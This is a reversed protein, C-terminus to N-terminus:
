RSPRWRTPSGPSVRRGTTRTCRGTSRRPGRSTSGPRWTSAPWTSAGSSATSRSGTASRTRPTAESWPRAGRRRRPCRSRRTRCTSWSTCSTPRSTATPWTTSSAACTSSRPHAAPRGRARRRVGPQEARPHARGVARRSGAPAAPRRGAGPHAAHGRRHRGAPARRDPLARAHVRRVGRGTRGPLHRRHRRARQRRLGVAPRGAQDLVRHRRRLRGKYDTRTVEVEVQGVRRLMAMTGEVLQYFCEAPDGERTLYEGARIRTLRGNEEFWALQEDDLAELLFLSRLLEPTARDDATTTM